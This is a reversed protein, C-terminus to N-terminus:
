AVSGGGHHRSEPPVHAHPQGQHSRPLSKKWLTPMSLPEWGCTAGWLPGEDKRRWWLTAASSCKVWVAGEHCRFHETLKRLNIFEKGCIHCKPGSTVDSHVLREHSPAPHALFIGWPLSCMQVRRADQSTKPPLSAASIKQCLDCRYCAVERTLGEQHAFYMHRRYRMAGKSPGTALSCYPPEPPPGQRNEKNFISRRLSSSFTLCM